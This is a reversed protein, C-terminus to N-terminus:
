QEYDNKISMEDELKLWDYSYKIENQRSDKRLEEVGIKWFKILQEVDNSKLLRKYILSSNIDGIALKIAFKLEGELKRKDVDTSVVEIPKNVQLENKEENIKQLTKISYSLGRQGVIKPSNYRSCFKSVVDDDYNLLMVLFRAIEQKTFSKNKEIHYLRLNQLVRFIDAILM